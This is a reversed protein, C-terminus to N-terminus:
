KLGKGLGDFINKLRPSAPGEPGVVKSLDPKNPKLYPIVYYFGVLLFSILFVYMFIKM